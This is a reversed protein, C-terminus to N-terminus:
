LKEDDLQKLLKNLGRGDTITSGTAWGSYPYFTVTKGRHLFQLQREDQQIIEYGRQKLQEVARAMRVPELRKQRETDLRGM